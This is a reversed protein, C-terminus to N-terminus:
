RAPSAVLRGPDTSDITWRQGNVTVQAPPEEGPVRPWEARALPAPGTVTVEAAGGSVTLAIRTEGRDEHVTATGGHGGWV